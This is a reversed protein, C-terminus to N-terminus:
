EVPPLGLQKRVPAVAKILGDPSNYFDVPFFIKVVEGKGDLFVLAPEGTLKYKDKLERGMSLSTNVEVPLIGALAKAAQGTPWVDRKMINCNGCSATVMDLMVPKGESRAQELLQPSYEHWQTGGRVMAGGSKEAPWCFAILAITGGLAVLRPLWLVGTPTTLKRRKFVGAALWLAASLGVSAWIAYLFRHPQLGSLVSVGLGLLVFGLAMKVLETWRGSRPTRELLGPAATLLLYPAAMGIGMGAFVAVGVATPLLAILGLMAGIVPGTCPTSLIAALTGMLLAGGLGSRGGSLKAISGPLQVPYVGFMGLAMAVIFLGLGFVVPQFNFVESFNATGLVVLVGLVTFVGVLGASFAVGALLIGGRRGGGASQKQSQHLFFGVTLPIVPLVCPTLNLLLGVPVSLLLALLWNEGTLTYGLITFTRNSPTAAAPAPTPAGTPPTAQGGPWGATVYPAFLDAHEQTVAAGAPRIPLMLDFQPHDGFSVFCTVNNCIEFNANIRLKLDGPSLAKDARVAVVAAFDGTLERFHVNDRFTEHGAPYVISSFEVGPTPEPRLTLPSGLVTGDPLAARHDHAYVHMGDALKFTLALYVTDGPRVADQSALLEVTGAKHVFKAPTSEAQPAVPFGDTFDDGAVPRGAAFLTALILCATCLRATM